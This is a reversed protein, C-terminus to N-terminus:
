LSNVIFAFEFDLWIARKQDNTDVSWISAHVSADGIVSNTRGCEFLNLKFDFTHRAIKYIIIGTQKIGRM